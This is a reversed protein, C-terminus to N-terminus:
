DFQVLTKPRNSHYDYIKGELLEKLIERGVSLGEGSGEPMWGVGHHRYCGCGCVVQRLINDLVRNLKQDTMEPEPEKPYHALPEITCGLTCVHPVRMNREEDTM